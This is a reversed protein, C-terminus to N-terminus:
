YYETNIIFIINIIIDIIIIVIVIFIFVIIVVIIFKFVHIIKYNATNRYHEIPYASNSATKSWHKM